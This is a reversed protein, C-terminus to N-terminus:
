CTTKPRTISPISTSLFISFTGTPGFSLGLIGIVIIFQPSSHYNGFPEGLHNFWEYHDGCRCSTLKILISRGVDMLRLVVYLGIM